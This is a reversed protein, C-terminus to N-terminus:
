MQNEPNISERDIIEDFRTTVDALAGSTGFNGWETNIIMQPRSSVEHNSLKVIKGMTEMYCANTGTGLILGILVDPDYFACSMMVGTTDNLM